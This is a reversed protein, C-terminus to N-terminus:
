LVAESLVFSALWAVAVLGGAVLVWKGRAPLDRLSAAAVIVAVSSLTGLTIGVPLEPWEGIGADEEYGALLILVGSVAVEIVAVSLVVWALVRLGRLNAITFRRM